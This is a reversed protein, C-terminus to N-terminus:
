AGGGLTDIIVTVMIRKTVTSAGVTATVDYTASSTGFGSRSIRVFTGTGSSSGFTVGNSSGSVLSFSWTVSRNATLDVQAYASATDFVMVERNGDAPTTSVTLFQWVLNPGIYVENIQTSGIKIDTIETGGIFISPM